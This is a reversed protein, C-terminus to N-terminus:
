APNAETSRRPPIVLSAGSAVEYHTVHPPLELLYDRDEPYYRAVTIDDGAFARIVDLSDWLSVLLFETVQDLERRLVFVGRNGPTAEYDPIGTRSLYEFYRDGNAAAVRGTWLRAIM